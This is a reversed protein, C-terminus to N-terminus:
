RAVEFFPKFDDTRLAAPQEALHVDGLELVCAKANGAREAAGGTADLKAQHRLVDLEEALAYAGVERQQEGTAAIHELGM